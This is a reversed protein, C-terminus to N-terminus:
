FQLFTGFNVLPVEHVPQNSGSQNLRNNRCFFDSMTWQQLGNNRGFNRVTDPEPMLQMSFDVLPQLLVSKSSTSSCSENRLIGRLNDLWDTSSFIGLEDSQTTSYSRNHSSSSALCVVNPTHISDCMTVSHCTDLLLLLKRFRGRQYMTDVAMALETASFPEEGIKFTSPYAHGGLFVVVDDHIDSELSRFLSHFEGYGEYVVKGSSPGDGQLLNLFTIPNVGSHVYETSQWVGETWLNIDSKGRSGFYETFYRVKQYRSGSFINGPYNNRPNASALSDKLIVLIHQEDVGLFRTLHYMESATSAHRFNVWRNSAAGILVWTKGPVKSSSSFASPDKAAGYTISFCLIVLLAVELFFRSMCLESGSTSSLSVKRYIYEIPALLTEVLKVACIQDRIKIFPCGFFSYPFFADLNIILSISLVFSLM